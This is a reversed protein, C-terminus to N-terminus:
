RPLSPRLPPPCDRRSRASRGPTPRRHGAPEAAPPSGRRSTRNARPFPPIRHLLRARRAPRQRTASGPRRGTRSADAGAGGLTPRAELLTVDYGADVLDLSAALGALGGGAVAVKVSGGPRARCRGRTAQRPAHPKTAQRLRRLGAARDRRAARRLHRGAHPRLARQAFRAPRAARLGRTLLARARSAQHAMLARWEQGTRGAGIDADSVGFRVLEDQPLYVRGLTWDEPVDRMINIQQLALGLTEALPQAREPDSPGTSPRVRLHRDHRRGQPLVRAPRGLTEYRARDVDWIAGDVLDLLASKPVPYRVVTDALALM